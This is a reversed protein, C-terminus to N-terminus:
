RDMICERVFTLGPSGCQGYVLVGGDDFVTHTTSVVADGETQVVLVTGDAVRGVYWPSPGMRGVLAVPEPLLSTEAFVRGNAHRIRTQCQEGTFRLGVFWNTPDPLAVRGHFTGSVPEEPALSEPLHDRTWCAYETAGPRCGLLVALVCATAAAIPLKRMVHEPRKRIVPCDTKSMSPQPCRLKAPRWAPTARPRARDGRRRRSAQPEGGSGALVWGALGVGHALGSPLRALRRLRTQSWM